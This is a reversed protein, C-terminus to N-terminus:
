PKPQKRRKARELRRYSEGFDQGDAVARTLAPVGARGVVRLWGSVESAATQYALMVHEYSDGFFDRTTELDVLKLM